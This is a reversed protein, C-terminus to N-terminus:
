NLKQEKTESIPNFSNQSTKQSLKDQQGMVGILVLALIGQKSNKFLMLYLVVLLHFCEFNM